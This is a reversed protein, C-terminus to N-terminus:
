DNLNRIEARRPIKLELTHHFVSLCLTKQVVVNYEARDSGNNNQDCKWAPNNIFIDGLCAVVMFDKNGTDLPLNNIHGVSGNFRKIKMIKAM